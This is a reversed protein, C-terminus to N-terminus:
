KNNHEVRLVPIVSHKMAVFIARKHEAVLFKSNNIIKIQQKEISVAFDAGNVRFCLKKIDVYNENQKWRLIYM